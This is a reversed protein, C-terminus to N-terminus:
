LINTLHLIKFFYMYRVKLPQEYPALCRENNRWREVLTFIGTQATAHALAFVVDQLKIILISTLYVGSSRFNHFYDSDM